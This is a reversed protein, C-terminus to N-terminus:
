SNIYSQNISDYEIFMQEGEADTSWGIFDYHTGKSPLIDTLVPHDQSVPLRKIDLENERGDNSMQVFKVLNSETIHAAFITLDPWKEAYISTLKDEQIPNANTNNV